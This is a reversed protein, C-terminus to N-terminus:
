AGKKDLDTLALQEEAGLDRVPPVFVPVVIAGLGVRGSVTQVLERWYPWVNYAGNLEAFHQLADAPYTRASPLGYALLYTAELQVIAGDGEADEGEPAASFRLDVFVYLHDEHAPPLEFRGRYAQSAAVRAPPDLPDVTSSLRAENLSVSHLQM